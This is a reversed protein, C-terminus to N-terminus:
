IFGLKSNHRVHLDLQFPNILLTSPRNVHLPEDWICLGRLLAVLAKHLLSLLMNCILIMSVPPWGVSM